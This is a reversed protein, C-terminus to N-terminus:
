LISRNYASTTLPIETLLSKKKAMSENITDPLVRLTQLLEGTELNFCDLENHGTAIWSVPNPRPERWVVPQVQNIRMKDNHRWLKLIINYRIDWLSIYGKSTGVACWNQDNGVGITTITGLESPLTVFTDAYSNRIDLTHIKSSQTGYLLVTSTNTTFQNMTYIAGEGVSNRYMSTASTVNYQNNNSLYEIRCLHISGQDSSSAYTHSNDLLLADTIRGGQSKDTLKSKYGVDRDIGKSDWIKVTGDDSCSIFFNNDQSVAIKNICGNHEKITTILEGKPKWENLKISQHLPVVYKKYTEGRENRLSGFDQPLKPISLSVIRKQIINKFYVELLQTNLTLLIDDKVAYIDKEKNLTKKGTVSIGYESFLYNADEIDTM